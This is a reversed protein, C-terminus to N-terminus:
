KSRVITGSPSVGQQTLLTQEIFHTPAQASTGANLNEIHEVNNVISDGDVYWGQRAEGTDIPTADALSSALSELKAKKESEIMTDIEKKLDGKFRIKIM